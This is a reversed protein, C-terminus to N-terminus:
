NKLMAEGDLWLISSLCFKPGLLIIFQDSTRMHEGRVYAM